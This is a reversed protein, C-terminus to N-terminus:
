VHARGIERLWFNCMPVFINEYQAYLRLLFCEVLMFFLPNFIRGAEPAEDTELM